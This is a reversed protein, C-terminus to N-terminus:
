EQSTGRDGDERWSFQVESGFVDISVLRGPVNNDRAVHNAAAQWRAWDHDGPVIHRRDAWRRGTKIVIQTGFGLVKSVDKVTYNGVRAKVEQELHIDEASRTIVRLKRGQVM